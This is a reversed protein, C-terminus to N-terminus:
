GLCTRADEDRVAILDLRHPEPFPHLPLSIRRIGDGQVHRGAGADFRSGGDHRPAISAEIDENIIGPDDAVRRGHLGGLM